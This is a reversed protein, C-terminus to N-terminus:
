SAVRSEVAEILAKITDIKLVTKMPLRTNFASEVATILKLHNLSDWRDVTQPSDELRLEQAGIEFVSAAIKLIAGRIDSMSDDSIM